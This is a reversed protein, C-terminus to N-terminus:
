KRIKQNSLKHSLLFISKTPDNVNWTSLFPDIEKSFSINESKIQYISNIFQSLYKSLKEKILHRNDWVIKSDYETRNKLLKKLESM